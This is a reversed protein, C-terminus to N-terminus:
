TDQRRIRLGHDPDERKVFKLATRDCVEVCAPGNERNRCLDCKRSVGATEDKVIRSTEQPCQNFCTWCGVCKSTEIYRAGTKSDIGIAEAPCAYYCSPFDCQNCFLPKRFRFGSLFDNNMWKIHSLQPAVAGNHSAACAMLCRSCAACMDPDWHIYGSLPVRQVEASAAQVVGRSLGAAVIATAGTGAGLLFGRRAMKRVTNKRDNAM